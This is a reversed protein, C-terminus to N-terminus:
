IDWDIVHVVLKKPMADRVNKGAYHARDWVKHYNSRNGTSTRLCEYTWTNEEVRKKVSAPPPRNSAEMTITIVMPRYKTEDSSKGYTGVIRADASTRKRPISSIASANHSDVLFIVNHSYTTLRPVNIAQVNKPKAMPNPTPKAKATNACIM